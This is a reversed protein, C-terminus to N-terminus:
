RGRRLRGRRKAHAPSLRHGLYCHLGDAAIPVRDDCMWCYRAGEVAVAEPEVPPPEAAVPPAVPEVPPAVPEVPPAVPEVPPPVPEVPPEVLAVPEAPPGAAGVEVAVGEPRAAVPDAVDPVDGAWEHGSPAPEPAVVPESPPGVPPEGPEVRVLPAQV